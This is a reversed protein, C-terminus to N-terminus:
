KIQVNKIEWTASQQDSCLYKFAIRAGAALNAEPIALEGSTVYQWKTTGCAMGKIETWTAASPEGSVYDNSVWVTYYGEEVGIINPGFAHDFSLKAGTKGTLDIAPTILWDENEVSKGDAFGSMKAGYNSDFTWGQEGKVSVTAFKGFSEQTLISEFFIADAGAEVAEGKQIDVRKIEWTGAKKETSVYKFAVRINKGVWPTLSMENSNLLTWDEGAELVVPVQTWTAANPDGSTYNESVWVTAESSLDAFYRAVHNITMKANTQGALSIEPSILWDENAHNEKTSSVYGTIMVYGYKSDVAWVEDGSVSYQTFGGLDKTFEYSFIINEKGIPKEGLEKDGLKAYSVNKLGMENFYKAISGYLIVEKNLNDKNEALNIGNRVEGAPLQVPMYVTVDETVDAILINTKIDSTEASFVPTNVDGTQMFGVIYAKVYANGNGEKIAEAVTFPKEFSGDNKNEPKENGGGQPGDPTIPDCAVVTLILASLISLFKIKKM